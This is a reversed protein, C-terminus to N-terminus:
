IRVRITDIALVGDVTYPHGDRQLYVYYTRHKSTGEIRYVADFPIGHRFAEGRIQERTVQDLKYFSDTTTVTKM